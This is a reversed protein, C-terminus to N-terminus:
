NSTTAWVTVTMSAIFELAPEGEGEAMVYATYNGALATFNLTDSAPIGCGCVNSVEEYSFGMTSTSNGVVGFGCSYLPGTFVNVQLPCLASGYSGNHTIIMTVADTSTNSGPLTVSGSVWTCNSDTLFPCNQSQIEPTALLVDPYGQASQDIWLAAYMSACTVCAAIVVAVLVASVSVRLRAARPGIGTREGQIATIAVRDVAGM